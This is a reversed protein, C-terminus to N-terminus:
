MNYRIGTYIKHALYHKQDIDTKALKRSATTGHNKFQYTLEINISDSVKFDLGAIVSHTFNYVVKRNAVGTSLNIKRTNSRDPVLAEWTISETIQSVGVGIGGFLKVHETVTFFDKYVNFMISNIIVEKTNLYFDYFSTPKSHNHFTLKTYSILVDGRFTNDFNYGAGGGIGIDPSFNSNQKFNNFNRIRNFKNIGFVGKFYPTHEAFASFPIMIMALILLKTKLFRIM